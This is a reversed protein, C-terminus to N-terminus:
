RVYTTNIMIEGENLDMAVEEFMMEACKVLGFFAGGTASTSLALLM